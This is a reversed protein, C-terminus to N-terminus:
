DKFPHLQFKPRNYKHELEEDMEYYGKETLERNQLSSDYYYFQNQFVDDSREYHVGEILDLNGAKYRYYEVGNLVHPHNFVYKVM